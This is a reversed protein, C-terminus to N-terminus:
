TRNEPSEEKNQDIQRTRVARFKEFHNLARTFQRDCRMEYESMNAKAKGFALADRTPPDEVQPDAEHAIRASEMAWARMLRWHAVTMKHILMTEIVSQPRLEEHLSTLLSDFRERSEGSLLVTRALMARDTNSQAARRKGEATVPGRSKAGNARSAAIQKHTPM